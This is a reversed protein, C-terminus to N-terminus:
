IIRGLLHHLLSQTEADAAGDVGSQRWHRQFASVADATAPDYLGTGQVQYGFADLALQLDLVAAGSSGPALEPADRSPAFGPDPWLGIGAEALRRWDFLEGPDQKRGPAVDSHGLVQDPPVPHRALLGRCLDVLAAMQAKPYPRYGWEHGPNALEVGISRGNVDSSGRWSAVGAHWARRGEPVLAYVAGEEDVLYHASVKAAPDCLRELAEGLTPLGTYHLVLMDISAGAPRPDHNPSPQDILAAM